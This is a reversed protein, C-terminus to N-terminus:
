FLINLPLPGLYEPFSPQINSELHGNGQPYSSVYSHSLYFQINWLSPAPTYFFFVPSTLSPWRKVARVVYSRVKTSCSLM